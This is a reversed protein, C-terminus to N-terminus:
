ARRLDGLQAFLDLWVVELGPEAEWEDPSVVGAQYDRTRQALQELEGETYWGAGQTEDPSPQLEGAFETVEFVWWYHHDGELRRCPNHILQAQVATARLASPEVVLGLEEALEAVAAQEPSGHEDIHGSAPAIGVPFRARKLLAFRGHADRVIVASSTFDCRRRM